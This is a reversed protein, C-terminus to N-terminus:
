SSDEANKATRKATGEANFSRRAGTYAPLKVLGASLSTGAVILLGCAVMWTTVQEDLFVAGNKFFTRAIWVTLGVSIVSYAVYVAVLYEGGNEM